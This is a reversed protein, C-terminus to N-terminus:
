LAEKTPASSYTQGGCTVGQHGILFVASFGKKTFVETTPVPTPTVLVRFMAPSYGEHALSLPVRPGQPYRRLLQLRELFCLASCAFLRTPIPGFRGCLSLKVRDHTVAM